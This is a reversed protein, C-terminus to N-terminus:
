AAETELVRDTPMAAIEKNLMDQMRDAVMAATIEWGYCPYDKTLFVHGAEDDSIEFFITLARFSRLGMFLPEGDRLSLGQDQMWPYRAMWGVACAATDCDYPTAESAVWFGLYFPKHERTVERLIAIGHQWREIHMIGEGKGDSGDGTRIDARIGAPGTLDDSQIGGCDPVAAAYHCAVHQGAGGM